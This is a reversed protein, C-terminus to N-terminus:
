KKPFCFPMSWAMKGSADTIQCRFYADEAFESLDAKLTTVECGTGEGEFAPVMGLVGRSRKSVLIASTCPSFEAEFTKGDFSIKYFDPGQTSYVSGAKLAASLAEVSNDKACIMTWNRFLDRPRHSDDVSLAPYLKGADLLEDWIQMNLEKGIYRTSTNSVEIGALDNLTLLEASTFGCWYPHAAFVMGGERNVIDIIEQANEPIGEPVRKSVNLALLHWKIGRPGMPHLEMGPILTMGRHDLADLDNHKGHDTLSLVNYGREAYQDIQQQPTFKGDSTTSHTHLNAKFVQLTEPSKGPTQFIIEAM